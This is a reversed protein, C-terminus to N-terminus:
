AIAEQQRRQRLADLHAVDREWEQRSPAADPDANRSRKKLADLSLPKLRAKGVTANILTRAHNVIMLTRGWAADAQQEARAAHVRILRHFERPLM